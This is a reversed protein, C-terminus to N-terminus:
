HTRGFDLSQTKLIWVYWIHILLLYSQWHMCRKESGTKISNPTTRPKLRKSHKVKIILTSNNKAEKRSIEESKYEDLYFHNIGNSLMPQLLWSWRMPLLAIPSSVKKNNKPYYWMWQVNIGSNFIELFLLWM